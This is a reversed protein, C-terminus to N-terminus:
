ASRRRLRTVRTHEATFPILALHRARKIAVVARRQVKASVGTKRRSLIRGRPDLFRTLLATNKYNIDEIRVDNNIRRSRGRQTSPVYEAPGATRIERIGNANEVDVDSDGSNGDDDSVDSVPPASDTSEAQGEPQAVAPAEATVPTEPASTEEAENEPTPNVQESM